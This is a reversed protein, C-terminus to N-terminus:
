WDFPQFIYFMDKIAIESLEVIQCILGNSKTWNNKRLILSVWLLLLNPLGQRQVGTQARWVRGPAREDWGVGVGFCHILRWVFLGQRAGWVCSFSSSHGCWHVCFAQRYLHCATFHCATFIWSKWSMAPKIQCALRM